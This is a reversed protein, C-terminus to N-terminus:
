KLESNKHTHNDIPEHHTIFSFTKVHVQYATIDTYQSSISINQPYKEMAKTRLINSYTCTAIINDCTTITRM